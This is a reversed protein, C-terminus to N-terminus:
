DTARFKIRTILKGFMVMFIVM